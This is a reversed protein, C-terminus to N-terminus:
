YAKDDSADPVKTANITGRDLAQDVTFGKNGCDDM